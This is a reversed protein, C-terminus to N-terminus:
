ILDEKELREALRGRLRSLLTRVNGESLGTRAAIEKETDFFFYRRVFVVRHLPKQSSLFSNVAARIAASDAWASPGDATDPLCDELEDFVLLGGTRKQATNRELRTLAANRAIKAAYAGLRDPRKPPITNWLSLMADSVCEEADERSGLVAECVSRLLRGYRAETEAIAREDRRVFLSVIESDEL